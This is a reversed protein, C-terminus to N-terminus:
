GGKRKAHDTGDYGPGSVTRMLAAAIDRQRLEERALPDPLAAEVARRPLGEFGTSDIVEGYAFVTREESVPVRYKV